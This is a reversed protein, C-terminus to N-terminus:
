DSAFDAFRVRPTFFVGAVVLLPSAKPRNEGEVWTLGLDM